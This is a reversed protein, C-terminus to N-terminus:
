PLAVILFNLALAPQINNHAGDGGTNSLGAYGPGTVGVGPVASPIPVGLLAAGVAPVAIGEGHTHGADTHSHSPTESVILTHTEEGFSDGLARPTLGTGTGAGLPVRGRLDPLNFHSGDASGYTTGLVDFLNPYDSRLLSAGNCLLWKAEPSTNGAYPIIEGVVRCSGKGFAFNDYMDILGQATEEPTKAGFPTWSAPDLLPLLAGIVIAVLDPDNPIFLTRCITEAPITDPTLYGIPM